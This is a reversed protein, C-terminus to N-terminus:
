KILEIQKIKENLVGTRLSFSWEGSDTDFCWVQVHPTDKHRLTVCVKKGDYVFSAFVNVAEPADYIHDNYIAPNLNQLMLINNIYVGNGCEIKQLGYDCDLTLAISEGKPELTVAKIGAINKKAKFNLKSQPATSKKPKYLNETIDELEDLRSSDAKEIKDLLEYVLEVEKQMNTSECLMTFVMNREPFVMCLQGYAGDGRFGEKANMWFQYGYGATWDPTGNEQATSHVSSATNIWEESVIRKGNYVGGDRLIIGFRIIDDGSLYLGTGGKCSGDACRAWKPKEVDLHMLVKEYLYDVLQMGSRRELAAGCIYTAATSYVFTAGPTHKVPYALFSKITDPEHMIRSMICADHGSTMCLCDKIRMQSLNESVQEPLKDPFVDVIKEEISLLGESQAIGVCISTFSKSLSYILSKDSFTYPEIAASALLRDNKVCSFTRIYTGNLHCEKIFDCLAGTNVGESLRINNM